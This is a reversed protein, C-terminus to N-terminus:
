FSPGPTTAARSKEILAAMETVLESVDLPVFADPESIVQMGALRGGLVDRIHISEVQGPFLTRIARYVEPDREGSDGVLIFRRRPLRLMLDAIQRVKQDLTALGGGVAFSLLSGVAGREVLNLRLPKMHLTGAPFKEQEFLFRALVGYMQWPSGSVYHFSAEAAAQEGGAMAVLRERMGPVATFAHLFTNRLVARKGAPIGTAKLTDDIDCVISLGDPELFRIAGIGEGFGDGSRARIALWPDRPSGAGAIGAASSVAAAADRRARVDRVLTDPVRMAEEVIGGPTTMQAFRFVKRGPDEEFRFEVAERNKDDAIFPALCERLQAKEAPDLARRLDREFHAVAWDQIAREVFPTDRNDHVWVRMPAVWTGADAPDRYGYSPYVTLEKGEIRRRIAAFLARLKTGM